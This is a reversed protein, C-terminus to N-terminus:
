LTKQYLRQARDSENESVQIDKMDAGGRKGGGGETFVEGLASCLFAAGRAENKIM